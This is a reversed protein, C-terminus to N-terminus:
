AIGNGGGVVNTSKKPAIGKPAKPLASMSRSPSPTAGAFNSSGKFSKVANVAKIKPAKALSVQAVTTGGTSTPKMAIGIKELEDSFAALLVPNM